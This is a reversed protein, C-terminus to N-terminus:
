QRRFYLYNRKTRMAATRGDAGQGSAAPRGGKARDSALSSPNGWYEEQCLKMAEAAAPSIKTTAAHDAYILSPEQTLREQM